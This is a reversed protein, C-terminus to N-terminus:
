SVWYGNIFLVVFLALLMTSILQYAFIVKENKLIALSIFIPFIPLLFRPFSSLSPTILPILISVFGYISYILPLFRFGRFIIGVGFVAIILDLLVSYHQDMFGSQSLSKITEWFGIGPPVISRQWNQEATIFYIPNTTSLYLYGCYLLFGLPALLFVYLNKRNFGQTTQVYIILSVVVALGGLRTACALGSFLTALFLRDKRLFYFCALTFLLFLGESYATLLFFSTPFILFFILAREALKKSFDLSILQYLLYLSLITAALNILTASFLYNGTLPELLHILLPYLPFFAYQYEQRYGFQAISLFHGGDWNSLNQLFDAKANPKHPLQYFGFTSILILALLWIFFKTLINVQLKM